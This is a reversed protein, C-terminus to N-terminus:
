IIAWDSVPFVIRRIGCCALFQGPARVPAHRSSSLLMFCSLCLHLGLVLAVNESIYRGTNIISLQCGSIFISLQCHHWCNSFRLFGFFALVETGEIKFWREGRSMKYIKSKYPSPFVCLTEKWVLARSIDLLSNSSMILCDLSCLTVIAHMNM